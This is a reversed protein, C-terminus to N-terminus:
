KKNSLRKFKEFIALFAQSDLDYGLSKLRDSLAHRGSHKGLVIEFFKPPLEYHQENAKEPVLAIPSEKLKDVWIQHHDQLKELNLSDRWILRQNCLNKIGIKILSDPLTGNEAMKILMNFMLVM